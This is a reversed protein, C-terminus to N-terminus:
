HTIGRMVERHIFVRLFEQDDPAIRVFRLSMGPERLPGDGSRHSYLVAADADISRSGVSLKLSVQENRRPPKLMRVFLGQESLNTVYEGRSDNLPVRNVTVPLATPIRINSRPTTEIVAQITRYLDEALVPKTLCPIAGGIEVFRDEVKADTSPLLLIVQLFRAKEGVKRLLDLGGMDPLVLDTIMLAPMVLSIMDLAQQGNQATFVPYSFRQLIMATYNLDDLRGNVVLLYRNKRGPEGSPISGANQDM